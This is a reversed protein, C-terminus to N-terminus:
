QEGMFAEMVNIFLEGGLFHYNRLAERVMEEPFAALFRQEERIAVLYDYLLDIGCAADLPKLTPYDLTLITEQPAFLPDYFNFFAPMGKEITDRYALSGYDRFDQMIEEYVGLAAEVKATVAKYGRQYAEEATPYELTMIGRAAGQAGSAKADFGSRSAANEELADIRNRTDLEMICYCVADMLQEATEYSISSSENRTYKISLKKVIPLLEELSYNIETKM